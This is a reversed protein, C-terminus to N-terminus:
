VNDIEVASIVRVFEAVDPHIQHVLPLSNQWTLRADQLYNNSAAAALRRARENPETM